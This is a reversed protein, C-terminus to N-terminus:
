YFFMFEFLCDFVRVLTLVLPCHDSGYFGDMSLGTSAIDCRLVSTLLPRTVFAHDLRMGIAEPHGGPANRWSYSASLINNHPGMTDSLPLPGNWTNFHRWTDVLDGARVIRQFREREAVTFGSILTMEAPHSVDAPTPAINLDGMWIVQRGRGRVTRSLFNEIQKDWETRRSTIKGLWPVYTALIDLGKYGLIVIRGEYHHDTCFKQSYGQGDESTSPVTATTTTTTTSTGSTRNNCMEEASLLNFAVYQPQESTLRVAVITGSGRPSTQLSFYLRYQRQNKPGFLLTLIDEVPPWSKPNSRLDAEKREGWTAPRIQKSPIGNKVSGYVIYMPTLWVEQLICIDAETQEIIFQSASQLDGQLYRALLDNVNWSVITFTKRRECEWRPLKIQQQKPKDDENDSTLDIIDRKKSKDSM